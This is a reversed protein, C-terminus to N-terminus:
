TAGGVSAPRLAVSGVVAHYRARLLDAVTAASRKHCFFRVADAGAWFAAAGSKHCFASVGRAGSAPEPAWACEQHSVRWFHCIARGFPFGAGPTGPVHVSLLLEPLNYRQGM